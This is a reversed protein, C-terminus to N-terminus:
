AVARKPLLRRFLIWLASGAASIASNAALGLILLFLVVGAGQVFGQAPAGNMQFLEPSLGAIVLGLVAAVAQFTAAVVFTVAFLGGFSASRLYDM